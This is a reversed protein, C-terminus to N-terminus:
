YYAVHTIVITTDHCHPSVSIPVNEVGRWLLFATTANSLASINPSGYLSLLRAFELFKLDFAWTSAKIPTTPFSGNRLLAVAASVCDCHEISISTIAKSM